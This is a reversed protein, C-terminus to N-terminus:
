KNNEYNQFILKLHLKETKNNKKTTYFNMSVIRSYDFAKEFDYSMELLQAARGTMDIQNTIINYTSDSYVHIPQLDSVSLAPHRKSAFNIIGQQVMEKTVGEKGILKDLLSIEKILADTNGSKTRMDENKATLERYESITGILTSFSRKYATAGLLVFIALLAIFKQKYSYQEFM